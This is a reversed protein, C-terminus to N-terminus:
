KMTVVVILVGAGAILFGPSSLFKGAAKTFNNAVGAADDGLHSVTAGGTNIANNAVGAVMSAPTFIIGAVDQAGGIADDWWTMSSQKTALLM